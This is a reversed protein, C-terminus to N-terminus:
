QHVLCSLTHASMGHATQKLTAAGSQTAAAPKKHVIDKATPISSKTPGKFAVTGTQADTGGGAHANCTEAHHHTVWLSAWNVGSKPKETTLALLHLKNKEEKDEKSSCWQNCSMNRQSSKKALTSLQPYRSMTPSVSVGSNTTYQQTYWVSLLHCILMTQQRQKSFYSQVWNAPLICSSSRGCSVVSQLKITNHRLKCLCHLLCIESKNVTVLRKVQLWTCGNGLRCSSLLLLPVFAYNVTSNKMDHPTVSHSSSWAVCSKIWMNRVHLLGVACCHTGVAHVLAVSPSLM